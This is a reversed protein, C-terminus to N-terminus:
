GCRFRHCHDEKPPEIPINNKDKKSHSPLLDETDHNDVLSMAPQSKNEEMPNNNNPVRNMVINSSDEHVQEHHDMLTSSSISMPDDNHNQEKPTDHSGGNTITVDEVYNHRHSDDDDDDSENSSSSISSDYDTSIYAGTEDDYHAIGDEDDDHTSDDHYYQNTFLAQINWIRVTGDGGATAFKTGDPHIDISYIACKKKKNNNSGATSGTSTTSNEIPTPAAFSELTQIARHFDTTVDINNDNPNTDTKCPPHHVSSNEATDHIVWLPVEAIVM